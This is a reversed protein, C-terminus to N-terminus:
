IVDAWIMKWWLSFGSSAALAFISASSWRVVLQLYIHFYCWWLQRISNGFNLTLFYIYVFAELLGTLFIVAQGNAPFDHHITFIIHDVNWPFNFFLATFELVSFLSNSPWLICKRSNWELSTQQQLLLAFVKLTTFLLKFIGVWEKINYQGFSM